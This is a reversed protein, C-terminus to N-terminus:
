FGDSTETPGGFVEGVIASGVTVGRRGLAGFFGGTAGGRRGSRGRVVSRGSWYPGLMQSPLKSVTVMSRPSINTKLTLELMLYLWYNIM